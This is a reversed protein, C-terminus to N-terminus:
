PRLGIATGRVSIQQREYQAKREQEDIPTLGSRLLYGWLKASAREVFELHLLRAGIVARDGRVKSSSAYVYVPRALPYTGDALTADTPEIGALASGALDARQARYFNYDVVAIAHPDAWLNQSVMTATQEVERYLRDTRVSYCTEAYREPDTDQLAQVGAHRDCGPGLVLMEFARRLPTDRAPGLVEIARSDLAQEIQDWTRHSNDILSSPQAPDPIREALALYVSQTSLKIPASTAGSTLVVAQYGIKFEIVDPVGDRRCNELETDTIRRTALVVDVRQAAARSCLTRFAAAAEETRVDIPAKVVANRSVVDVVIRALPYTLYSTVVALRPVAHEKLSSGAFVTSGGHIAGGHAHLEGPSASSGAEQPQAGPNSNHQSAFSGEGVVVAAGGEAATLAPVNTQSPSPLAPRQEAIALPNSTGEGGTSRSSMALFAGALASSGILFLTLLTRVTSFRNARRAAQQQLQRKLKRSFEPSPARRFAYLFEDNMAADGAHSVM